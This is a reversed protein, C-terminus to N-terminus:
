SLDAVSRNFDPSSDRKRSELLSNALRVAKAGSIRVCLVNRLFNWRSNNAERFAELELRAERRGTAAGLYKILIFDRDFYNPALKRILPALVWAHLPLCKRFARTEFESPPCNHRRCFLAAVDRRTGAQTNTQMFCGVLARSLRAFRQGSPLFM